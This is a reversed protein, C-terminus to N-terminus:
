KSDIVKTKFVIDGLKINAILISLYDAIFLFLSFINRLIIIYFKPTSNDKMVIEIKAIKKGISANKFILDKFLFYVIYIFNIFFSYIEYNPFYNFIKYKIFLIIGYIGFFLIYWDILAALIRKAKLM